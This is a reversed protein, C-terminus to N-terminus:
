NSRSSSSYSESVFFLRDCILFTFIFFTKTSANSKQNKAIKDYENLKLAVISSFHLQEDSTSRARASASRTFINPGLTELLILRYWSLVVLYPLSLVSQKAM